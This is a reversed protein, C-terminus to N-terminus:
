GIRAGHISGTVYAIKDKIGMCQRLKDWSYDIGGHVTAYTNLVTDLHDRMIFSGEGAELLSFLQDSIHSVASNNKELHEKARERGQQIQNKLPTTM